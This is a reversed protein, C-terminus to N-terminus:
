DVVVQRRGQNAGILSVDSEPWHPQNHRTEQLQELLEAYAAAELESLTEAEDISQDDRFVPTKKEDSDNTLVDFLVDAQDSLQDRIPLIEDVLSEEADSTEEIALLKIEALLGVGASIIFQSDDSDADIEERRNWVKRFLHTAEKNERSAAARLATRYISGLEPHNSKRVEEKRTRLRDAADPIEQSSEEILGLGRDYWELAEDINDQKVSIWGLREAIQVGKRIQNENECMDFSKRLRENALEYDEEKIATMSLMDLSRVMGSLDALEKRIEFSEQLYEEAEDLNEQLAAVLGLNDLAKAESRRDGIEREISLCENYYEEAKNFEGRMEAILGLENLSAAEFRRDETERQISLSEILYEEAEDLNGRRHEVLGLNTLSKEEGQRDGIEQRIALSKRHNEEAKDLDGRNQFVIGLNDLSAAEGYQDGIERAITLSESHYKEAKDLNRRIRALTGLNGLNQGEGHRDGISRNIELSEKQYKEAKDLNGRTKAVLGLNNLSTAEGSRDNIERRIELSQTYYEEAENLEGRTKSILGLDNLSSAEGKRDGIERRITLSQRFYEEANDLGGQRKAVWGINNLSSGEGKKYDFERSMELGRRYYELAEAIEGSKKAAKGINNLNDVRKRPKDAETALKLSKKYYENATDIDGRKRAIDGLRGYCVIRLQEFNLSNGISVGRELIQQAVELNGKWHEVEQECLDLINDRNEDSVLDPNSDSVQQLIYLVKSQQEIDLEEIVDTLKPLIPSVTDADLRAVGTLASIATDRDSESDSDLLNATKPGIELQISVTRDDKDLATPDRNLLNSIGTIKKIKDPHNVTDRDVLNDLEEQMEDTSKRDPRPAEEYRQIEEPKEMNAYIAQLMKKGDLLNFEEAVYIGYETLGYFTSPLDRSRKEPDLEYPSVIGRDRLRELHEHITSKGKPISYNLEELSLLNKPHALIYQLILYRSEQTIFHYLDSEEAFPEEILDTM